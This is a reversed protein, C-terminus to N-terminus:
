GRHAELNARVQAIAAALQAESLLDAGPVNKINARVAEEALRNLDVGDDAPGLLTPLLDTLWSRKHDDPNTQWGAGWRADLQEVLYARWREGWADAL